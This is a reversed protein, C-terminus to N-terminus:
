LSFYLSNTFNNNRFKSKVDIFVSKKNCKTLLESLKFHSYQQHDVAYVIADVPPTSDLESLSINYEKKTAELDALPDTVIVDVGYEELERIIDVVKSNRIDSVNEKFTIGMILVKAGKVTKDAEILKKVTQEAIYKGMSDNIRRGALIVQPDYGLEEAKYTLYYPDVGICHGGVLGPTMKMFNWKTSAAEIVDLTNIDMRNFILSLENMLAVNLDRQTNEIVKAAEAVKISPALHTGATIISSYLENVTKAAEPTSGAVVKIIKTITHNKEGPSLREPSYGLFFDKNTTYGSTKEIIPACIDETVGPYVTSEYIVIAGKKLHKGLTETAKKVPTLDPKNNNDIPTPVTVIIIGADKLDESNHTFSITCKELTPTDIENTIDSNNQLEQIKKESIDFGIVNFQKDLEIALPLGVYGLGIIAIPYKKNQIDNFTIM